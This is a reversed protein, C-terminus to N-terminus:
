FTKELIVKRYTLSLRRKRPISRAHWKDKERAPIGHTWGYRSDGKLVVLSCPALYIVKKEGKDSLKKFEMICGSGLSLSIITDDFCPECDVHDSIGQGPLYENVIVQDPIVSMLGQQVIREAIEAAWNPITGIYMSHDLSRRKYDYKYGYHQVRRKLDTLWVSGEISELLATEEERSIFCNIYSLGEIEPGVSNISMEGQSTMESHNEPVPNFLDYQM